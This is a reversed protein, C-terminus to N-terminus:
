GVVEEAPSLPSVSPIDIGAPGKNFDLSSHNDSDLGGDTVTSVFAVGETRPTSQEALVPLPELSLSSSGTAQLNSKRQRMTHLAMTGQTMTDASRTMIGLTSLEELDRVKAPIGHDGKCQPYTEFEEEASPPLGVAAFYPDFILREVTPRQSNDYHLMSSLMEKLETSLHDPIYPRFPHRANPDRIHAPDPVPHHFSALEIITAALSWIDGATSVTGDNYAEPPMYLETGGAEIEFVECYTLCSVGFDALKVEMSDYVLLNPPKIDQHVVGHFHLVRLAVLVQYMVARLLGEHLRGKIDNKMYSHASGKGAYEM